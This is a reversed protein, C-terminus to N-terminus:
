GILIHKLNWSFTKFKTYFPPQHTWRFSLPDVSLTTLDLAPKHTWWPPQDTWRPPNTVSYPQYVQHTWQPLIVPNERLSSVLECLNSIARTELHPLYLSPSHEPQYPWKITHIAKWVETRSRTAVAASVTVADHSHLAMDM